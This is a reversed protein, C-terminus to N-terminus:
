AGDPTRKSPLPSGLLGGGMVATLLEKIQRETADLLAERAEDRNHPAIVYPLLFDAIKDIAGPASKLGAFLAMAQKNRRLYGPSDPTPQELVLEVKAM